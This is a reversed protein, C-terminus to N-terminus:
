AAKRLARRVDDYTAWYLRLLRDPEAPQPAPKEKWKLRRFALLQVASM